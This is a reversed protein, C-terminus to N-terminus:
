VQERHKRRLEVIEEWMELMVGKVDVLKERLEPHNLKEAIEMAENLAASDM